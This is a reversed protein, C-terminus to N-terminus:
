LKMLKLGRFLKHDSLCALATMENGIDPERFVVHDLGKRAIKDRTRELHEM